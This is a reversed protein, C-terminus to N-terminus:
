NSAFFTTGIILLFETYARKSGSSSHRRPPSPKTGSVSVARRLSEPLLPSIVRLPRPCHHPISSSPNRASLSSSTSGSLRTQFPLRSLSSLRSKELHILAREKTGELSFRVSLPSLSPYRLLRRGLWGSRCSRRRRHRRVSHVLGQRSGFSDIFDISLLPSTSTSRCPNKQGTCKSKKQCCALASVIM